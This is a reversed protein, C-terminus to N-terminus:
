PSMLLLAADDGSIGFFLLILCIRCIRDSLFPHERVMREGLNSRTGESGLDLEAGPEDEGLSPVSTMPQRSIVGHVPAHFCGIFAEQTPGQHIEETGDSSGETGKLALQSACIINM